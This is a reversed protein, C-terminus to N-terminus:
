IIGNARLVTWLGNADNTQMGAINGNSNWGVYKGDSSTILQDQNFAQLANKIEEGSATFDSVGMSKDQLWAYKSSSLASSTFAATNTNYDITGSSGSELIGLTGVRDIDGSSGDSYLFVGDGKLWQVAKVEM